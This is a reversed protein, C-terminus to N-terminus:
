QLAVLSMCARWAIRGLGRKHRRCVELTLRQMGVHEDPTAARMLQHLMPKYPSLSFHGVHFWLETEQIDGEECTQCLCDRQLQMVICGGLLKARKEKTRFHEKFKRLISNRLRLLRRGEGECVCVGAERCQKHRDPPPEQLSQTEEELIPLHLEQWENELEAALNTKRSHTAWSLAQTAQEYAHLPLHLLPGHASPIPQVHLDKWPVQPLLEQVQTLVQQGATEAFTPWHRRCVLLTHEPSKVMWAESAIPLPWPM